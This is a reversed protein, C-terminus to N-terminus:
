RSNYYSGGAKGPRYSPDLEIAQSDSVYRTENDNSCKNDDYANQNYSTADVCHWANENQVPESEAMPEVKSESTTTSTDTQSPTDNGSNIAFFVFLVGIIAAVIWGAWGGDNTNSSM